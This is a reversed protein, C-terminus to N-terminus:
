GDFEELPQQPFITLAKEGLATLRAQMLEIGAVYDEQTEGEESNIDFEGAGILIDFATKVKYYDGLMDQYDSIIAGAEAVKCRLEIISVQYEKSIYDQIFKADKDLAARGDLLWNVYDQEKDEKSTATAIVLRADTLAQDEILKDYERLFASAKSLSQMLQSIYTTSELM